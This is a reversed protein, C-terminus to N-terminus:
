PDVPISLRRINLGYDPEFAKSVDTYKYDEMNTTPFGLRRFNEFAESRKNNLVPAAHRDITDRHQEFLDIYQQEIM